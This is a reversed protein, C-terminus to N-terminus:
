DAETVLDHATGGARRGRPQWVAVVARVVGDFVEVGAADVDRALVVLELHVGFRERGAVEVDRLAVQVVARDFPESMALQGREADLVVGLSARSRLVVLVARVRAVSRALAPTSSLCPTRKSPAVISVIRLASSRCAKLSISSDIPSGTGTERTQSDMSSTLSKAASFPRGSTM